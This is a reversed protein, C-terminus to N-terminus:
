ERGSGANDFGGGGKDSRTERGGKDERSSGKSYDFGGKSDGFRSGKSDGGNWDHGSKSDKGGKDMVHGFHEASSQGVLRMAATLAAACGLKWTLSTRIM